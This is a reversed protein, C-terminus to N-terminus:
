FSHRVGVTYQKREYKDNVAADKGKFSSQGYIAYLNTRKSFNYTSGLQFGSADSHGLATTGGYAYGTSLAASDTGSNVSGTMMSAWALIKPTVPVRVGAEYLKFDTINVGTALNDVKSQQAMLFPQAIGFNYNASVTQNTIRTNSTGPAVINQQQIGYGATLNKVGTFMLSAGSETAATTGSTDTTTSTSSSTQASFSIGAVNPSIYTVANDIAADLARNSSTYSTGVANNMGGANGAAMVGFIAPYQRGVRLTGLKADTLGLHTYRTALPTSANDAGLANLGLEYLFEAKLGGGLDEVGKFGLRSSTQNSSSATNATNADATVAGNATTKNDGNSYGMDMIGYVTVSSQAQAAGAFATMAAIALLSKKM